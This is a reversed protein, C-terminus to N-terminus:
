VSEFNDNKFSDNKFTGFDFNEGFTDFHDLYARMETFIQFHCKQFHWEQFHLLLYVDELHLLYKYSM